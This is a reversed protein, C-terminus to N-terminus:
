LQRAHTLQELSEKEVRVTEGPALCNRQHAKRPSHDRQNHQWSLSGAELHNIDSQLQSTKSSIGNEKKDHNYEHNHKNKNYLKIM